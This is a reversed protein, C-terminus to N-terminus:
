KFLSSLTNKSKSSNKYELKNIDGTMTFEGTEICIKGISLNNGSVTLKGLVTNLRVFTDNSSEIETVGSMSLSKRNEITINHTQVTKDQM